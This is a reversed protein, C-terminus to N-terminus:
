YKAIKELIENISMENSDLSMADLIVVFDFASKECELVWLTLQSLREEVGGKLTKFEFILKKNEEVFSFKKSMLSNNKALSVWHIYSINDGQNFKKIEVFEDIEGNFSSDKSYIKFLSIGSPKAYIVIKKEIQLYKYKLEHPLPFLSSIKIKSLTADGRKKFSKQLSVTQSSHSEVSKTHKTQEESAITIDYSAHDSNNALLLKYESSKTAFFRSHSLLTVRISHLNRIGFVSSAGAIGVLFFM